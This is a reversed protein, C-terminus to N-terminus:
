RMASVPIGRGRRQEAMDAQQLEQPGPGTISGEGGIVGLSEYRGLGATYSRQGPWPGPRFKVKGWREMQARDDMLIWLSAYEWGPGGVEVELEQGKYWVTGYATIGDETFHIMVTECKGTPQVYGQIGPDRQGAAVALAHQRNREAREAPTLQADPKPRPNPAMASEAGGADLQSGCHPCFRAAGPLKGGCLHCFAPSGEASAGPPSAPVSPAPQQLPPELLQLALASPDILQTAGIGTM